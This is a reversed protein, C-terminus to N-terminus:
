FTIRAKAMETTGGPNLESDRKLEVGKKKASCGLLSGLLVGSWASIRQRIEEGRSQGTATMFSRVSRRRWGTSVEVHVGHGAALAYTM